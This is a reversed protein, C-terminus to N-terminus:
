DINLRAPNFHGIQCRKVITFLSDRHLMLMDM